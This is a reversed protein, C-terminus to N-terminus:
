GIDPPLFRRGRTYGARTAQRPPKQDVSNQTVEHGSETPLAEVRKM